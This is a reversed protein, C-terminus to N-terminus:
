ECKAVLPCQEGNEGSPPVAFIHGSPPVTFIHGSPPVAIIHGSPPVAIIRGRPPVVQGKVQHGKVWKVENSTGM